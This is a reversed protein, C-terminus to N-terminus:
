RRLLGVVGPSPWAVHLVPPPLQEVTGRQGQLENLALLRLALRRQRQAAALPM